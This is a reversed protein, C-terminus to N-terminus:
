FAISISTFSRKIMDSVCLDPRGYIPKCKECMVMHEECMTYKKNLIKAM